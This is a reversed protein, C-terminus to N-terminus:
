PRRNVIVEGVDVSDPWQTMLVAMRAMDVAPILEARADDSMDVGAKEFIETDTGPPSLVNVRIGVPALERALVQSFMNVAAKSACYVALSEMPHHAAVSSVNIIQGSESAKLQPISERCLRMLARVNLDMIRELAQDSMEAMMAVWSVGANNILLDIGGIREQAAAVVDGPGSDAALDCPFPVIGGDIEDALAKLRDSRRAVALVHWGERAFQKAIERGIGSSAGTVVAKRIYDVSM